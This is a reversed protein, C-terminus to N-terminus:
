RTIRYSGGPRAHFRITNGSEPSWGAPDSERAQLSVLAAQTCLILSSGAPEMVRM